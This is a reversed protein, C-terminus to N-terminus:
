LGVSEHIINHTGGVTTTNAYDCSQPSYISTLFNHNTSTLNSYQLKSASAIASSSPPPLYFLQYAKLTISIRNISVNKRGKQTGM